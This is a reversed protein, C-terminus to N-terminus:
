EPSEWFMRNKDRDAHYAKAWTEIDSGDYLKSFTKLNLAYERNEGSYYVGYEYFAKVVTPKHGYKLVEYMDSLHFFFNGEGFDM